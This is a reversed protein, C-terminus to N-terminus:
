SDQKKREYHGYVEAETLIHGRMSEILEEKAAGSQLDLVADLAYLKFFYRHNGKQPCPGGYGTTSFSTVGEIAGKPVSGEGIEKTEPPINWALWHTWVGAFSDPDDVILALAKADEPVDSITLPPNINVGDCTYRAPIEKGNKFANTKIDM